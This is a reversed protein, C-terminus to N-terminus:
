EKLKYKIDFNLLVQDATEVLEPHESRLDAEAEAEAEILQVQHQHLHDETEAVTAAVAPAAAQRLSAEAKMIEVAAVAPMPLQMEQGLQERAAEAATKRIRFFVRKHLAVAAAAQGNIELAATPEKDQHEAAQVKNELEVEVQVALYDLLKIILNVVLVAV